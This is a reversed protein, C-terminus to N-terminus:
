GCKLLSTIGGRYIQLHYDDAMINESFWGRQQENTYGWYQQKLAILSSMEKESLETTKKMVVRLNMM